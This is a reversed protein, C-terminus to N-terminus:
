LSSKDIIPTPEGMLYAGARASQSVPNRPCLSVDPFNAFDDELAVTPPVNKTSTRLVVWKYM